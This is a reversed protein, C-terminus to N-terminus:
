QLMFVMQYRPSIILLPRYDNMKHILCTSFSLRQTSRHVSSCGDVSNADRVPHGCHESVGRVKHNKRGDM